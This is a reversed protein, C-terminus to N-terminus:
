AMFMSEFFEYLGLSLGIGSGYKKITQCVIKSDLMLSWGIILLRIDFSLIATGFLFSFTCFFIVQDWSFSQWILIQVSNLFCKYVYMCIYIYIYIHLIYYCIYIYWIYLIYIYINREWFHLFVVVALIYFTQVSCTRTSLERRELVTLFSGVELNSKLISKWKTKNIIFTETWWKKLQDIKMFGDSYTFKQWSRNSSRDNPKCLLLNYIYKEKHCACHDVLRKQDYLQCM